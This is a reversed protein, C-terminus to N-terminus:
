EAWAAVFPNHVRESAITTAPGHGPLLLTDPAHGVMAACWTRRANEFAAPGGCGGVSGAFVADGVAFVPVDLGSISLGISPDAHGALDWVTVRLSGYALVDGPAIARWGASASAPGLVRVGGDRFLGLGGVHDRHDHTILVDRIDGPAAVREIARKLSAADCGADILLLGDGSEILWANVQESDGFPLDLRHVGATECAPPLYDPHGALAQEDLGLVPALARAAAEDWRGALLGLVVAGDLSAADAAEAPAMERVRLAKSLVYMFSDELMM